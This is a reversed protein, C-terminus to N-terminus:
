VWKLENGSETLKAETILKEIMNEASEDTPFYNRKECLKAVAAVRHIYDKFVFQIYEQKSYHHTLSDNKEGPTNMGLTQLSYKLLKIAKKAHHIQAIESLDLRAYAETLRCLDEYTRIDVTISEEKQSQSRLESWWEVLFGEASEDIVPNLTQAYNIFKTIMEPELPKEITGRRAKMIHQAIALDEEKNPIDRILFILGFRSLLSDPMNVNEKISLEPIWRSKKPNAAGIISVKVEWTIPIGIKRLSFTQSEMVEHAYTRDSANMKEMEDICAVGGNCLVVTGPKGIRTGDALNDVGGFLGAGSASKGSAYDSKKIIKTIFKLLQTKAVGPDGLLLANIDGRSSDKEVGGICCLLLGEKIPLMNRIHPAFSKILLSKDMNKFFEIENETPLMPKDDTLTMRTIDYIRMYTLDNAKKKLSRLTGMVNMKVGPNVKYVNEGYVYGTIHIPNTGGQESLLVKRLEKKDNQIEFMNLGCRDCFTIPKMDRWNPYQEDDVSRTDQCKPCKTVIFTSYHEIESNGTIILSMLTSKGEYGPKLEDLTIKPYETGDKDVLYETM